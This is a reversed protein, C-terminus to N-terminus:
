DRKWRRMLWNFSAVFKATMMSWLLTTATLAAPARDTDPTVGESSVKPAQAAATPIADRGFEEAVRKAFTEMLAKTVAIGGTRGFDALVGGFQADSTLSVISAPSIAGADERVTYRVLVEIRAVSRLDAGGRVHLQGNRATTDIKCAVKGRFKIKKPGFAVLMTGLFNGEEDRGEISAGPMCTVMREVDAFHGLVVEPRGPVPFEGEFHM